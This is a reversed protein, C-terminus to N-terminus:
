DIQVTKVDLHVTRANHQASRIIIVNGAVIGVAVVDDVTHQMSAAAYGHPSERAANFGSLQKNERRVLAVHIGGVGPIGHSQQPHFEAAAVARLQGRVDQVHAPRDIGARHELLNHIQAGGHEVPGLLLAWLDAVHEVLYQHTDAGMHLHFVLGIGDVLANQLVDIFVDVAPQGEGLNGCRESIM